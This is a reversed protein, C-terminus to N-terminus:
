SLLLLWGSTFLINVIVAALYYSAGSFSPSGIVIIHRLTSSDARAVVNAM